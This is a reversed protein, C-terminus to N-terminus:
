VGDDEGDHIECPNRFFLPMECGACWFLCRRSYVDLIAEVPSDYTTTASTHWPQSPDYYPHYAHLSGLHLRFRTIIVPYDPPLVRDVIARGSDVAHVYESYTVTRTLRFRDVNYTLTHAARSVLALL